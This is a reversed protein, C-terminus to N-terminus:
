PEPNKGYTCTETGHCTQCTETNVDGARDCTLSGPGSEQKHSFDTHLNILTVDKLIKKQIAEIRGIRIDLEDIKQHINM